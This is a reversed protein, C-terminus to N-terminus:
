EGEPFATDPEVFRGVVLTVTTGRAVRSGGAPAQEIVVGDDDPSSVDQNRATVKLGQARLTARAADKSDGIVSSVTVAGEGTSVTIVVESGRPASGPGPDQAIVTGEPESSAETDVNPLLGAGELQSQADDQQLGVVSPVEVLNSGKSVLLTVIQDQELRTGPEPETGIARGAPVQESFQEEPDVRFGARDLRRTAKRESLGEVRPVKATGPGASVSLLVTSGEEAEEGARPDQEVVTGPRQASPFATTEVELGADELTVTAADVDAGIVAPVAVNAPRTLAWV